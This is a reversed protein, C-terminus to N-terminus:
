RLLLKVVRQNGADYVVARTAYLSLLTPHDLHALDDGACDTEGYQAVCAPPAEMNDTLAYLRVRHRRTDAVLMTNGSAAVYLETGLDDTLTWAPTLAGSGTVTFACIRNGTAILLYRNALTALASPDAPLPVDLPTLKCPAAAPAQALRAHLGDLAFYWGGVQTVADVRGPFVGSSLVEYQNGGSIRPEAKFRAWAIGTPTPSYDRTFYGPNLVYCCAGVPGDVVGQAMPGFFECRLPAAACADTAFDFWLMRADNGVGVYGAPTLTLNYVVPLSGYRRLLQLREDRVTAVYLADDSKIYVADDPADAIQAVFSLAQEWQAVVGPIPRMERTFRGLFGYHGVDWLADKTLLVAGTYNTPVAGLGPLAVPTFEPAPQWSSTLKRVQGNTGLFVNGTEDVSFRGGNEATHFVSRLKGDEAVAMISYGDRTYNGDVASAVNFGVYVTQADPAACLTVEGSWWSGLWHFTAPPAMIQPQADTTLAIRCLNPEVLSFPSWLYHFAGEHPVPKGAIFYLYKGGIAFSQGGLVWDAKPLPLTWLLTGRRSLVLIRDGGGTYLRGRADVVVGGGTRGVAARITTPGEGGSNGVVGSFVLTTTGAPCGLLVTLVLACIIWCRLEIFPRM